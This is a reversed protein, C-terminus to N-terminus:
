MQRGKKRKPTFEKNEDITELGQKKEFRKKNSKKSVVSPKRTMNKTKQPITFELYSIGQNPKNSTHNNNKSKINNPINPLEPKVSNVSPSM